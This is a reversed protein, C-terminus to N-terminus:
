RIKLFILEQPLLTFNYLEVLSLTRKDQRRLSESKHINNNVDTNGMHRFGEHIFWRQGLGALSGQVWYLRVQGTRFYVFLFSGKKNLSLPFPNCHEIPVKQSVVYGFLIINYQKSRNYLIIPNLAQNIIQHGIGIEWITFLGVQLTM